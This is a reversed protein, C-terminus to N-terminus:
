EPCRRTVRDCRTGRVRYAEARPRRRSTHPLRDCLKSEGDCEKRPGTAQLVGARRKFAIYCLFISKQLNRSAGKPQEVTGCPNVGGKEGRDGRANASHRSHGRTERSED